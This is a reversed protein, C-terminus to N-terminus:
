SARAERNHRVRARARALRLERRFIYLGSGVVLVAGSCTWVDPLDGWVLLGLLIAWVLSSYKFPGVLGVEGLRLSEIMLSHALAVLVGTCGLLLWQAGRPMVWGWPLSLLGAFTVVGTSVVLIAVTSEGGTGMRRTVVDRAAGFVAASLPFFAVLRLMGPSPRVMLVVGAFGVAVASWRRWGVPERLLVAALVTAIIPGAYSVAVTDAFPMLPLGTVYLYSSAAMMAGRALQLRWVHVRLVAPRGRALVWSCALTVVIMGRLAMVEGPPLTQALWKVTADNLTLLGVSLVMLAISRLPSGGAQVSTGPVAAFVSVRTVLTGM